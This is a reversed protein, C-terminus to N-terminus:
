KEKLDLEMKEKIYDSEGKEFSKEARHKVKDKKNTKIKM